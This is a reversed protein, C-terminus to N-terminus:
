MCKIFMLMEFTEDNLQCREPRFVKGATSFLREVPASSAPISLYHAVIKAICPFKEKNTKWYVLPDEEHQLCTASLYEDILSETDNSTSTSVMRDQILEDFFSKTPQKNKSASTSPSDDHSHHSAEDKDDVNMLKAKAVLQARISSYEDSTGCWKLKFRPDLASALLFAECEEYDTM